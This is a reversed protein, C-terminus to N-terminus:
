LEFIGKANYNFQLIQYKFVFDLKTLVKLFYFM